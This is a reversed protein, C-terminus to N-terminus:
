RAAYDLVFNRSDRDSSFRHFELDQGSIVAKRNGSRVSVAPQVTMTVGPLHESMAPLGIAEKFASRYRRWDGFTQSGSNCSRGHIAEVSRTTLGEAGGSREPGEPSWEIPEPPAAHILRFCLKRSM